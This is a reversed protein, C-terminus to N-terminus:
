NKYKETEFVVTQRKTRKGHLGSSPLTFTTMGLPLQLLQRLLSMDCTNQTQKLVEKDALM